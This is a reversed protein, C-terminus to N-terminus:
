QVFKSLFKSKYVPKIFIFGVVRIKAILYVLKAM